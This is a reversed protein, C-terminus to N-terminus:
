PIVRFPVNSTLTRSPTIVTVYGTIAGSPVTTRIFTDSVVTFNAPAGDFSVGTTGTFGQGLIDTTQGIKGYSRGFSVFPGLGVDLSFVTGCGFGWNPCLNKGGFATTGYFTGDTAQLLGTESAIGGALGFSYVSTVRKSSLMFVTGSGYAGGSYSTGYLNGDTAQILGAYPNAGAPCNTQSCMQFTTFVGRPTIRFVTGCGYPCDTYNTGGNQTTGYFSGDSAQVLGASPSVGDAGMFTHLITLTGNPTMKFITGCKCTEDGGLLTTGYFAGDKGQALNGHPYVGDRCGAQPCFTYLTTLIGGPTIKFVTGASYYGNTTGYFNGDTAEILGSSPNGGDECNLQPCFSYLTTLTGGQTIKFITGCDAPPSCDLPWGGATGYLNGDTALLLGAAPNHGDACNTRSCSFNYLTTLRGDRNIKFVTGCGKAPLCYGVGTGGGSMTGYFNGDHGQVLSMLYPAEGNTGDFNLLTKYTQALVPTVMTAYLLCIGCFAKWKELNDLSGQGRPPFVPLGFTRSRKM